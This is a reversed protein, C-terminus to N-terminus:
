FPLAIGAALRSPHGIHPNFNDKDPIHIRYDIRLRLPGAIVFKVGGGVHAALGEDLENDSDRTEGYVSLGMLVYFQRPESAPSSQVIFSAGTTEVRHRRPSGEGLSRAVEIEFGLMRATAPPFFTM